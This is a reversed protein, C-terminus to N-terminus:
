TVKRKFLGMTIRENGSLDKHTQVNAYLHEILIDQVAGAQDWGHELLLAGGDVLHKKADLAIQRIDDLGDKGSVLASSPEFVLDGQKLHTDETGIYPPNSIILDFVEGALSNFWHSQTFRINNINFEDANEKAVGLAAMSEDVAVVQSKPREKAIAIAIAGSGTGMDAVQWHVDGPIIGLALEVLHETEPRPILTGSTVKLDLSWFEKIGVIYAVPEGEYRRTILANITLTEEPTLLRDSYLYLQTRTLNLAHAVLVEVDLRSTDYSHILRQSSSTLIQSISLPSM